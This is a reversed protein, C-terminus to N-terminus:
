QPSGLTSAMPSTQNKGIKPQLIPCSFPPRTKKGLFVEWLYPHFMIDWMSVLLNHLKSYSYMWFFVLQRNWGMQFIHTLNSMKGWTEPHFNWVYEFNWWWFFSTTVKGFMRLFFVLDWAELQLLKRWFVAVWVAGAVMGREIEAPGQSPYSPIIWCCSPPISLDMKFPWCLDSAGVKSPFLRMCKIDIGM